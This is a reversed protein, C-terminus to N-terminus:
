VSFFQHKKATTNSFVRLLGKSQLSILGTLGLLFWDLINMPLVSAISENSFVRISPFLRWRPPSPSSLPHPPQIADSVWHLHTQTFEPLQHHVPLGPTSWDMPDWLTLCSQFSSFLVYLQNKWTTCQFGLCCQLAISSWYYFKKSFSFFIKFLGWFNNM